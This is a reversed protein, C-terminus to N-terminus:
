HCVVVGGFLQVRQFGLTAGVTGDQFVPAVDSIVRYADGRLTFRLHDVPEYELGVGADVRYETDAGTVRSEGEVPALPYAIHAVGLNFRWLLLTDHTLTLEAGVRNRLYHDTLVHPRYDRDFGITLEPRALATSTYASKSVPGFFWSLKARGVVGDYERIAGATARTSYDSQAWGVLTTLGFREGFMGSFGIQTRIETNDHLTAEPDVFSIARLETEHVLASEPLFRFRERLALRHQVRDAYAQEAEDHLTYGLRYGAGIDFQGAGLALGADAGISFDNQGRTSQYEPEWRPEVRRLYQGFLTLARRPDGLLRALLESTVGLNSHKALGPGSADTGTLILGLLSANAVITPEVRETNPAALVRQADFYKLGFHATPRFQWGPVVSSGNRQLFNSDYGTEFAAGMTMTLADPPTASARAPREHDWQHPRPAPEAAISTLEAPSIRLDPLYRSSDEGPHPAHHELCYNAEEALEQAREDAIKIRTVERRARLMDDGLADMFAPVRSEANRLHAGMRSLVDDLCSATEPSGFNHARVLEEHVLAARHSIQDVLSRVMERLRPTELEVCYPVIFVRPAIQATPRGALILTDNRDIRTSEERLLLNSQAYILTIATDALERAPISIRFRGHEPDSESALEPRGKVFVRVGGWPREGAAPSSRCYINGVLDVREDAQANARRSWSAATFVLLLIPGLRRFSQCM